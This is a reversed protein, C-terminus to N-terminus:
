VPQVQHQCAHQKTCLRRRHPANSLVAHRTSMSAPVTCSLPVLHRVTLRLLHHWLLLRAALTSAPQCAWAVQLRLLGPKLLRWNRVANIHNLGDLTIGYRPLGGKLLDLSIALDQGPSSDTVQLDQYFTIHKFPNNSWSPCCLRAPLASRSVEADTIMVLIVSAPLSAAICLCQPLLMGSNCVVVQGPAESRPNVDGRHFTTMPRFDAM